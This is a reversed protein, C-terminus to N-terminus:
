RDALIERIVHRASDALRPNTTRTTRSHSSRARCRGAAVAHWAGDDVKLATRFQERALPPLLSWAPILDISPDGVSM